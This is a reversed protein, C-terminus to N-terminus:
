RNIDSKVGRLDRQVTGQLIQNYTATDAWHPATSDVKIRMKELKMTKRSLLHPSVGGM